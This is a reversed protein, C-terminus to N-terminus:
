TGGNLRLPLVHTEAMVRGDPGIYAVAVVHCNYQKLLGEIASACLQARANEQPSFGTEPQFKKVIQGEMM